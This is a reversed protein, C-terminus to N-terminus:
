KKVENEDLEKEEVESNSPSSNKNRIMGVTNKLILGTVIGVSLGIITGKIFGLGFM